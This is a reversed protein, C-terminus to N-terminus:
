LVAGASTHVEKLIYDNNAKSFVRKIYKSYEAPYKDEGTTLIVQFDNISESETKKSLELARDLLKLNLKLNSPDIGAEEPTDILLFRPHKVTDRKLALSLLTFYYMLRIPVVASKEKYLGRDIYPMYDDNIEAYNSHCSSKSLLDSYVINFEDITETNNKSFVSQIERFKKEVSNYTNNKIDYDVKLKIRENILEIVEEIELVETKIELIKDNIRDIIQSNGSFTIKDIMSKLENRLTIALDSKESIFKAIEEVEFTYSDSAIELAKISKKKHDLIDKYEISKYVFKEYDDSQLKSGCVCFGEKKTIKGMCFPCIELAFLNLKDHTFIIKEIQSIEDRQNILLRGLKSKEIDYNNKKVAAESLKVELEILETQIKNLLDTKDTSNSNEKQYSDRNIFLKDLQDKAEKLKRKEAEIDDNLSPYKEIFNDHRLKADNREALHKKLLNFIKNYQESSLGVLTEFIAKRVISSDSIYNDASPAKYIKRPDTDQDYDLLRFLDKFGILWSTSGLYLEFVEIGLKGLIWDSFTVPAYNVNRTIPLIQVKGNDELLIDNKGIYRKLIYSCDNILMDLQVYNNKDDKIQRYRSNNSKSNEVDDDKKFFPITGGLVFEIFYSFTSKGSGNDGVIINIGTSLM